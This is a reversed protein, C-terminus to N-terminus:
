CNAFIKQQLFQLYNQQGWDSLLLKLHNHNQPFIYRNEHASNSQGFYGFTQPSTARPEDMLSAPATLKAELFNTDLGTKKREKGKSARAQKM